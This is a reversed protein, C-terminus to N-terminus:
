MISLAANEHFCGTIRPLPAHHCSGYGLQNIM